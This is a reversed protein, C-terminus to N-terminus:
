KGASGLPAGFGSCPDWGTVAEYGEYYGCTGADIDRFDAATKGNAYILTEEAPTSTSFHGAHNAIGAWLPSAVSTGGVINWPYVTGSYTNEYSNYVWVGTRPNGVAAVDPVGRHAGVTSSISSQFSPRPEYMSYGGGTDEWAVENEFVMTSPNRSITTGGVAVVNPSVSPYVTGESDGSSAFFVVNTGTFITDSQTETSFESGGWSMSVEGGGAAKVLSIATTVAAFLDNFDSSAAEVLYIHASPAAAHAMEIDLASETAWCDWGGYNACDPDPAPKATGPWAITFTSSTPAPLGFQQSYATLDVLATPYDFADVIAIAKSGGTAVTTLTALNCGSTATVLHYLCAVSAPTEAFYGAIPQVPKAATERSVVEDEGFGVVGQPRGTPVFIKYLTRARIGVDDPRQIGSHPIVVQGSGMRAAPQSLEEDSLPLQALAATSSFLFGLGFAMFFRTTLRTM